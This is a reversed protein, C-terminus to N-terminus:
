ITRETKPFADHVVGDLLRGAAKKGVFKVSHHTEPAPLVRAWAWPKHDMEILHGSLSIAHTSCERESRDIYDADTEDRHRDLKWPVPKWAGWQKFFFPVDAAACQERISRVWAPHVARAGSGSEGGVVVWDLRRHKTRDIPGHYFRGARTVEWTSGRLADLPSLVNQLRLTELDLPGLLPEASLWRVIAPTELLVPIREDARKQDEASVGLWLNTLPWQNLFVRPGSPAFQTHSRNAILTVNLSMEIAFDCAISYVRRYTEPHSVYQWMTEPRKTLVQFTHQPSLAMIAFVKDIWDDPVGEAFLDGHACVFIKRPRKWHLPQTLWEANFRVDGNWVPGAKTETTLGRRSDTHKLRTGALKMAYCNTCGPSVISCGTIPNWTADTWEIHTGDAM